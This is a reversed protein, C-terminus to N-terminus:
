HNCCKIPIILFLIKEDGKLLYNDDLEKETKLEVLKINELMYEGFKNFLFYKLQLSNVIKEESHDININIDLIRNVINIM